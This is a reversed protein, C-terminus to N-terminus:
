QLEGISKLRMGELVYGHLTHVGIREAWRWAWRPGLLPQYTTSLTVSTQGADIPTFQFSGSKLVVSRNEIHTQEIVDFALTEQTQSQTIRKVLRGKSYVCVKMDGVHEAKGFTYLPRPLIFRMLFPRPHHVEEYFM